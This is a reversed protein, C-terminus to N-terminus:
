RPRHDILLVQDSEYKDPEVLQKCTSYHGDLWTETGEDRAFMAAAKRAELHSTACVLFSDVVFGIGFPRTRRLIYFHRRRM